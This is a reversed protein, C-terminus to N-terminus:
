SSLVQNFFGAMALWIEDSKFVKASMAHKRAKPEGACM